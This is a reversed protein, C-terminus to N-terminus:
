PTDWFMCVHGGSDATRWVGNAFFCTNEWTAMVSMLRLALVMGLLVGFFCAGVSWYRVNVRECKIRKFERVQAELVATSASCVDAM